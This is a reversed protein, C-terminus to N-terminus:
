PHHRDAKRAVCARRSSPVLPGDIYDLPERASPRSTLLKSRMPTEGQITRHLPPIQDAITQLAHYLADTLGWPFMLDLIDHMQRSLMPGVATTLMALCQFIPAEVPANKRGRMKLHEKIIKVIDDIFPRMKSALQVSLHGLAVYAIDRDSPKQLAQLLYAMSRHLYHVEFEDSDYTAMIPILTIVAKRIVTDKSDRYKLTIECISRYFESM